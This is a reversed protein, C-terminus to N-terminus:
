VSAADIQSLRTALLASHPVVEPVRRIRIPTRKGCQRNFSGFRSLRLFSCRLFDFYDGAGPVCPVEHSAVDLALTGLVSLAEVCLKRVTRQAVCKRSDGFRRRIAWTTETARRRVFVSGRRGAVRPVPPQRRSLTFMRYGIQLPDDGEGDKDTHRRWPVMLSSPFTVIDSLIDRLFNVMSGVAFRFVVAAIEIAVIGAVLVWRVNDLINRSLRRRAVCTVAVVGVVFIAFVGSWLRFQDHEIGM